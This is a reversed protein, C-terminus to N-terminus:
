NGYGVQIDGYSVQLVPLVLPTIIINVNWLLIVYVLSEDHIYFPGSFQEHIEKSNICKFEEQPYLLSTILFFAFFIKIWYELCWICKPSNELIEFFDLRVILLMM